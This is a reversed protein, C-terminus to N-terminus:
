TINEYHQKFSKKARNVLTAITGEPKKLIDSMERYSYGEMFKLILVECYKIDMTGLTSQISHADERAHIEGLFDKGDATWTFVDDEYDFKGYKIKIKERRAYDVVENHAIRYAWSNFSLKKDFGNLNIYIKLFINQLIDEQDEQPVSTIRRIYRGLKIEYREVLVGFYEQNSLSLAVLEVDTMISNHLRQDM